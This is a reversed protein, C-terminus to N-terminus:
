LKHNIWVNRWLSGSAILVPASGREPLIWRKVNFFGELRNQLAKLRKNDLDANGGVCTKFHKQWSGVKTYRPKASKEVRKIPSFTRTLDKSGLPLAVPKDEPLGMEELVAIANLLAPQACLDLSESYIRWEKITKINNEMLNLTWTSSQAIDANYVILNILKCQGPILCYAKADMCQMWANCGHM